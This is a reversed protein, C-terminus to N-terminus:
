PTASWTGVPAYPRDPCRAASNVPKDISLRTSGPATALASGARLYYVVETGGLIAGIRSGADRKAGRDIAAGNYWLRAVGSPHGKGACTRRASVRVLMQDGPSFVALGNTLQLGVSHLVANNFGSSGGLVNNV